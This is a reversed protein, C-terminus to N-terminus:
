WAVDGPSVRASELWGLALDFTVSKYTGGVTSAGSPSAADAPPIVLWTITPVFRSDPGPEGAPLRGYEYGDLSGGVNLRGLADKAETLGHVPSPAHVVKVCDIGTYPPGARWQKIRIDPDATQSVEIEVDAIEGSADAHAFLMTTRFVRSDLVDVLGARETPRLSSWIGYLCGREDLLKRAREDKGVEQWVEADTFGRGLVDQNADGYLVPAAKGEVVPKIQMPWLDAAALEPGTVYSEVVWNESSPLMRNSPFELLGAAHDQNSWAAAGGELSLVTTGSRSTSEVQIPREKWGAMNTISGELALMRLLGVGFPPLDGHSTWAVSTAADCGPREPSCTRDHRVVHFSADLYFTEDYGENDLIHLPYALRQVGDRGLTPEPPGLAVRIGGAHELVAEFGM